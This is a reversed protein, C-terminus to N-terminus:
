KRRKKKIQNRRILANLKIRRKESPKKYYRRDRIERIFGDKKVARKFQAFAKEFNETTHPSKVTIEIM